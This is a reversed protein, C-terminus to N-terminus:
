AEILPVGARVLQELHFCFNILEMRPRDHRNM